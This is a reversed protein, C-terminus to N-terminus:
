KAAPAPIAEPAVAAVSPGTPTRVDASPPRRGPRRPPRGTIAPREVLWWLLSALAVSGVLMGGLVFVLTAAPGFGAPVRRVLEAGVGIHVLYIGYSWRGLAHAVRTTLVRPAAGTTWQWVLAGGVLGTGCGAYALLTPVRGDDLDFLVLAAVSALGLAGLGLGLWRGERTGPLRLRAAPELAALVLGPVFAWAFAALTRAGARELTEPPGVRVVFSVVFAVALLALLVRRRRLPDARTSGARVALMAVLPVSLYFMFEVGLTWGQPLVFEANGDIFIHGFGFLALVDRTGAGSSGFWLLTVALVLWFAPMIRRVRRMVYAGPRPFESGSLWARVWPGGILYGSLVLLVYLGVSMRVFVDGVPGWDVGPRREAVLFFVGLFGHFAIIGLAAIGRLGDGAIVYGETDRASGAM